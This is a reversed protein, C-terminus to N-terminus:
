IMILFLLGTALCLVITLGWGYTRIAAFILGSPLANGCSACKYVQTNALAAGCHQCHRIKNTPMNPQDAYPTYAAYSIAAGSFGLGTFILWRWFCPWVDAPSNALGEPSWLNTGWCAFGFMSSLLDMSNFMTAILCLAGIVIFILYIPFFLMRATRMAQYRVERGYNLQDDM